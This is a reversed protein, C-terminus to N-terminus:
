GHPAKEISDSTEWQRRDMVADGWYPRTFDFGKGDLHCSESKGAHRMDSIYCLQVARRKRGRVDEAAAARTLVERNGPLAGTKGPFAGAKKHLLDSNRLLHSFGIFLSTYWSVKNSRSVKYPFIDGSCEGAGLAFIETRDEIFNDSNLVAGTM